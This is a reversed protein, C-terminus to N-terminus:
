FPVLDLADSIYIIYIKKNQTLNNCTELLVCKIDVDRTSFLFKNSFPHRSENSFILNYTQKGVADILLPLLGM